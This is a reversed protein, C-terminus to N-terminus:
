CQRSIRSITEKIKKMTTEISSLNRRTMMQYKVYEVRAKAAKKEEESFKQIKEEAHGVIDKLNEARKRIRDRDAIAEDAMVGLLQEEETTVKHARMRNNLDIVQNLIEQGGEVSKLIQAFEQSQKDHSFLEEVDVINRGAKPKKLLAKAVRMSSEMIDYKANIAAIDEESTVGELEKERAREIRRQRKLEQRDAISGTQDKLALLTKASQSAIEPYIKERIVNVVDPNTYMIRAMIVKALQGRTALEISPDKLSEIIYSIADDFGYKAMLDGVLNEMDNQAVKMAMSSREWDKTNAEYYPDRKLMTMLADQMIMKDQDVPWAFDRIPDGKVVTKNGFEKVIDAALEAELRRREEDTM